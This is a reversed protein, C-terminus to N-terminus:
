REKPERSLWQVGFLLPGTHPPILIEAACEVCRYTRHGRAGSPRLSSECWCATWGVIVRKPGLRHGNPCFKPAREYSAMHVIKACM